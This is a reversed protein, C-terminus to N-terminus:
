PQSKLDKLIWEDYPRLKGASDRYNDWKNVNILYHTVWKFYLFTVPQDRNLLNQTSRILTRRKEQDSTQHYFRFYNELTNNHYGMYNNTGNISFFMELSEMNEEFVYDMLIADFDGQALRDNIQAKSMPKPRIEIGIELLNIKLLRAIENEIRLGKPYFLMLRLPIGNKDLIGDRDSDRWGDQRLLEIAKRPDYKYSSMGASYLPSDDDFPGRALSAKGGIIKDIITGHNIAYALAARTNRAQLIENRHNYCILKVNNETITIPLPLFHPNSENVERASTENELEAVDVKDLVLASILARESEYYKFVLSKPNSNDLEYSEVFEVVLDDSERRFLRFPKGDDSGMLRYEGERTPLTLERIDTRGVLEGILLVREALHNGEQALAAPLLILFNWVVFCRYLVSIKKGRRHM